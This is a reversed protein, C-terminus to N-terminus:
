SSNNKQRSTTYLQHGTSGKNVAYAHVGQSVVIFGLTEPIEVMYESKLCPYDRWQFEWPPLYSPIDSIITYTFEIISGEKVGPMSFKAWRHERDTRTIFVDQPDLNQEIVQGNEMNCTIGALNSLKQLQQDSGYLIFGVTALKFATKNLIKIRTQRSYVCSFWGTANGIYHVEGQDSLIVAHTNSDIIPTSPLVFDAPSVKDLTHKVKDRDQAFCPMEFLCLCLFALYYALPKLSIM